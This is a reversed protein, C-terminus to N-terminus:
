MGGARGIADGHEAVPTQGFEAGMFFEEGCCAVVGGKPSM